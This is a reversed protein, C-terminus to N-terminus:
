PRFAIAHSGHYAMVAILPSLATVPEKLARGDSGPAGPRPPADAGSERGSGQPTRRASFRSVLRSPTKDARTTVVGSPSTLSIWTSAWDPSAGLCITRFM